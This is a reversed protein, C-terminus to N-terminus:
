FSVAGSTAVQITSSTSPKGISYIKVSTSPAAAGTIQSFVVDRTAGVALTAADYGVGAPLRYYGTRTSASYAGSYFLAYFPATSTSHEFHVGWTTSSAQAMSRSQAERLLTAVQRATAEVETGSKRGVLNTVAVVGLVAAILVVVILEILTAGRKM